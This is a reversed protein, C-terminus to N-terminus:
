IMWYLSVRGTWEPAKLAGEDSLDSGGYLVKFNMGFFRSADIGFGGVWYFEFDPTSFDENELTAEIDNWIVSSEGLLSADVDVNSLTKYNMQIGLIFQFHDGIKMNVLIPWEVYLADWTVTGDVLAAIGDDSLNGTYQYVISRFFANVGTQLFLPNHVYFRFFFGLGGSPYESHIEELSQNDARASEAIHFPYFLEQGFAFFQRRKKPIVNAKKPPISTVKEREKLVQVSDGQLITVVLCNPKGCFDLVKQGIRNQLAMRAALEQQKQISDQIVQQKQAEEKKLIEECACTKVITMCIASKTTDKLSDPPCYACLAACSSDEVIVSSPLGEAFLIGPFLLVLLCWINRKRDMKM